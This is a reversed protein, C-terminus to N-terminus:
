FRYLTREHRFPAHETAVKAWIGSFKLSENPFQFDRAFFVYRRVVNTFACDSNLARSPALVEWGCCGTNGSHFIIIFARSCRMNRSTCIIGLMLCRLHHSARIILLYHPPWPNGMQHSSASHNLASGSVPGLSLHIGPHSHIVYGM